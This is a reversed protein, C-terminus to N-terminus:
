IIEGEEKLPVAQKTSKCILRSGVIEYKIDELDFDDPLVTISRIEKMPIFMGKSEEQVTEATKQPQDVYFNKGEIFICNKIISGPLSNESPFSKLEGIVIRRYAPLAGQHREDIKLRVKVKM